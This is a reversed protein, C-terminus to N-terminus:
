QHIYILINTYAHGTIGHERFSDGWRWEFV